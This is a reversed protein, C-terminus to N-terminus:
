LLTYPFHGIGHGIEFKKTWDLTWDHFVLCFDVFLTWDVPCKAHIIFIEFLNM